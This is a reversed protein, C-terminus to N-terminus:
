CSGKKLKRKKVANIILMVLAFVVIDEAVRLVTDAYENGTIKWAFSYYRDFCHVWLMVISNKGLYMLPKSMTKIGSILQSFCSVAMTGAVACAYCIPFLPYSRCSLELYSRKLWYILLLLAAWAILWLAAKKVTKQGIDYKKLWEGFLFFPQVALAIDFSFPLWQIKGLIVGAISCICIAM